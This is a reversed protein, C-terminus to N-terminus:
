SWCINSVLIVILNNFIYNFIPISIHSNHCFAISSLYYCYFLHWLFLPSIVILVISNLLWTLHISLFFNCQNYLIFISLSNRNLFYVRYIVGSYTMVVSVTKECCTIESFTIYKFSFSIIPFNYSYM